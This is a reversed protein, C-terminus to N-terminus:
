PYPRIIFSNSLAFYDGVRFLYLGWSGMFDQQITIRDRDRKVYVYAGEGGIAEGDVDTESEIIMNHQICYGYLKTGVRDLCNSDIVFFAKKPDFNRNTSINELEKM